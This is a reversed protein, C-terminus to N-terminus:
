VDAATSRMEALAQSPDESGFIASGAVIIDAGAKVIEQLNHNKIGGDVEIKCQYNNELIIRKLKAIKATMQPIYSQGGFGPNVSMILVQDLEPLIFELSEVPTAPNLSVGAKIGQEKILQIVRHIHDTAELHVTLIDSGAEAFEKIYREPKSIMLHTDFPLQSHKRVASILGPGFTINPVYHGDMVDLHLYDADKVLQIQDKLQSFDSALLSPAFETKM